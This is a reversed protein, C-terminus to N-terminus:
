EFFDGSAAVVAEIRQCYARAVTDGHDEGQSLECHQECISWVYFDLPNRDPSSPPWFEPLNVECSDQTTKADHTHAGNKQFVYHRGNTVGDMWSKVVKKLVKLYVDANIKLGKPFFHHPMMGGENSVVGLVM